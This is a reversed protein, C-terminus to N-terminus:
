HLPEGVHVVKGSCLTLGLIAPLDVYRTLGFAASCLVPASPLTYFSCGHVLVRFLVAM